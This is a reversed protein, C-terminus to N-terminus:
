MSMLRDLHPSRRQRGTTEAALHLAATQQRACTPAMDNEVTNIVM